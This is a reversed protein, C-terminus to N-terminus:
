THLLLTADQDARGKNNTGRTMKDLQWRALSGTADTM